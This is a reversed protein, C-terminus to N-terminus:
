RHRLIFDREECAFESSPRHTAWAVRIIPTVRDPGPLPSNNSYARMASEVENLPVLRTGDADILGFDVMDDFVDQALEADYAAHLMAHQPTFPVELHEYWESPQGLEEHREYSNRTSPTIDDNEGSTFLGPLEAGRLASSSHVMFGRVPWGLEEAMIAFDESYGGGNSFGWGFVPTDETMATTAIVEDRLAAIRPMDDNRDPDVTSGDWSGTRRDTSETAVYGIGAATWANYTRIYHLGTLNGIEGSSGHFLFVVAKPSEPIHRIWPFGDFEGQEPEVLPRIPDFGDDVCDTPTPTTTGGGGTGGGGGGTAPLGGPTFLSTDGGGDDDKSGGCAVLLAMLTLRLM